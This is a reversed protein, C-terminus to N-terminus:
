YSLVPISAGRTYWNDRWPCLQTALHPVSLRQFCRLAFGDGLSSRGCPLRTLGRTSSSTSLGSTYAGYPTSSVPVLLDLAQGLKSRQATNLISKGTILASPGCRNGDRVCFNLERTGLMGPQLRGPFTPGRRISINRRLEATSCEATLRLTAPEFGAPPAM